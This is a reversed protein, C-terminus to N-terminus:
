GVWDVVSSALVVVMWIEVRWVEREEWDVRAVRAAASRESMREEMEVREVCWSAAVEVQM